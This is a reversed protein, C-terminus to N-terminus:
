EEGGSEEEAAAEEEEERAQGKARLAIVAFDHKYAPKVNEPLELESAYIVVPRDIGDMPYVITKPIDAPLCAVLVTRSLLRRKAGLKELPSVGTFEVPVGVRVPKDDSVALLDVHLLTRRVPHLQYDKVLVKPGAKGDVELQLVTNTGMESKLVRVIDLPKVGVNLPADTGTGYVVAPVHGEARLRRNAGKGTNPRDMAQLTSTSMIVKKAGAPSNVVAGM